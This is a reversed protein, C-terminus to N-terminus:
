KLQIIRGNRVSLILPNPSIELGGGAGRTVTFRGGGAAASLREIIQSADQLPERLAELALKAAEYIQYELFGPKEGFEAKFKASFNVWEPTSPSFFDTFIIKKNRGGSSKLFAQSNWTNPGLFLLNDLPLTKEVAAIIEGSRTAGDPIFVADPRLSRIWEIETSIGGPASVYSGDYIVEGGLLVVSKTFSEKFLQSIRNQPAIVAFRKVGLDRVSYNALAAAQRELSYFFKILYPNDGLGEESIPFVLTPVKLSEAIKAVEDISVVPPPGIILSVRDRSVLEEFSKRLGETDGAVDKLSLQFGEAANFVNTALLVGRLAKRGVMEYEGSLPFLCGLSAPKIQPKDIQGPEQCFAVASFLVLLVFFISICQM